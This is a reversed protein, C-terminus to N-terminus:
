IKVTIINIIDAGASFDVSASNLTYFATFTFQRFHQILITFDNIIPMVPFATRFSLMTAQKSFSHSCHHNWTATDATLVGYFILTM